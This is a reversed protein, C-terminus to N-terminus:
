EQFHFYSFFPPPLPFLLVRKIAPKKIETFFSRFKMKAQNERRLREEKLQEKEEMKKKREEEKIKKEDDKKRREAERKERREKKELEEREKKM